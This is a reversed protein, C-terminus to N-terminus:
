TCLSIKYKSLDTGARPWSKLGEKSTQFLMENTCMVWYCIGYHLTGFIDGSLVLYGNTKNGHSHNRKQREAISWRGGSVFHDYILNHKGLVNPLKSYSHIYTRRTTHVCANAHLYDDNTCLKKKQEGSGFPSFSFGTSRNQEGCVRWWVSKGTVLWSVDRPM